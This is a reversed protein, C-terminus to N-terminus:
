LRRPIWLDAAFHEFARDFISRPEKVTLTQRSRNREPFDSVPLTEGGKRNEPSPGRL